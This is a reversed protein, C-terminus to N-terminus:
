VIIFNKKETWTNFSNTCGKWKVYLTDVKKKIVKIVKWVSFDTKKECNKVMFRDVVEEENLYKKYIDM